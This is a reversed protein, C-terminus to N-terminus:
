YDIGYHKMASKAAEEEALKRSPGYGSAITRGDVDKVLMSLGKSKSLKTSTEEVYIPQANFTSLFYRSLAEKANNQSLVLETMDIHAEIFSIIWSRTEKFGISMYMAGVFAEFADELIKLNNRTLIEEVQKSIIVYEDLKIKLALKYLMHGNVIKSRLRTMFGENESPFREFLYEAVVISLVSDGLFELRENSEEQLPVCNYPCQSNGNEFSDNKKVCYSRHVMAQLFLTMDKKVLTSGYARIINSLESKTMVKNSTNFPSSSNINESVRKSERIYDEYNRSDSSKLHSNNRSSCESSDDSM